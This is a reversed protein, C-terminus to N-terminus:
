VAAEEFTLLKDRYYDYQTRRARLEAPLGDSLSNVLVEFNDLLGVVREQEHLSPVPIPVSRVIDANLNSVTSSGARRAFERQLPASRLLHYLFDPIFSENFNSIALWGDHIAGDIRSIYPRGFSMSNSLVFDGPRVMRSKAAGAKTVREATATIYKGGAPVDGIKIWPVGDKDDTLFAQIPRPSAGRLITTVEGMPLRKVDDDFTMLFNRYYSYQVRRAGLEAELASFSDLVRVIERQVEIPPIPVNVKALRAKSVNFRTVGSATRVLQKRVSGSRFLYKAFEPDFIALDNLRYGISFSNLYLPEDIETTVVSSMAVEDSTESSGTFLIDGRSLTRQREGPSVRVFDDAATNVALNNFVNVYSVFRASGDSFDSKSKGTLGGFITGLEGLSAYRVGNPCLKQILDDIRSM